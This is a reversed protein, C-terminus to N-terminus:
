AASDAVRVLFARGALGVTRCLNRQFTDRLRPSARLQWLVEGNTWAAERARAISWSGVLTTLPSLGRDVELVVGDLFSQRVQEHVQALIETIRDYDDRVGHHSPKLGLQGCTAVMAVGLDHNIHANMGAVAFQIPALPAARQDFVPAWCEAVHHGAAEARVADLYLQAFVIDLRTM